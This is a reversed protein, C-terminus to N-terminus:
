RDAPSNQVEVDLAGSTLEAHLECSGNASRLVVEISIPGGDSV